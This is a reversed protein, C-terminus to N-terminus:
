KGRNIYWAIAAAIVFLVLIIVKGVNMRFSSKEKSLIYFYFGLLPLAFVIVFILTPVLM